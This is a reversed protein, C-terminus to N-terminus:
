KTRDCTALVFDGFVNLEFLCSLAIVVVYAFMCLCGFPKNLKWKALNIALLMFVVTSLLILASYGIGGSNILLPDGNKVITTDLLWPLGLCVLIDFVNSGISNSVAMDGYGDRAVFVSSLCDPVSTGAALITLGMVTDPIELADGIITVMWVMLYSCAAIWAISLAFTLMYLRRWIGHRRCDPISVFMLCKMPLMVAWYIKGVIHDPIDWPSDITKDDVHVHPNGESEETSFTTEKDESISDAVINTREETYNGSQSNESLPQKEDSGPSQHHSMADGGRCKHLLREVYKISKNELYRNFYMILIYIIYMVLFVTAEYWYVRDDDIVIVLAAISLLYFLCDRTMPYWTLKVVMGAFISCTGIIFLINFVASGVITGVGVDSKAIFVGIVSTFFEPASSGAAMFTAGAVDEQLNLRECIVELSSVFYDDCVIALAGFMYLSIAIHAAIGGGKTQDLTFFNEPFEEIARPTCNKEEEEDQGFSETNNITDRKFRRFTGSTKYTKSHYKRHESATKLYDSKFLLSTCTVGIYVLFLTVFIYKRVEFKRKCNVTFNNRAM